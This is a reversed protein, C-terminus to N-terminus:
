QTCRQELGLKVKDCCWKWITVQSYPWLWMEKALVNVNIWHSDQYLEDTWKCKKLKFQIKWVSLWQFRRLDTGIGVRATNALLRTGVEKIYKQCSGCHGCSSLLHIFSRKQRIFISTTQFHNIVSISFGALSLSRKGCPVCKDLVQQRRFACM